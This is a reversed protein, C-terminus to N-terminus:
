EESASFPVTIQVLRERESSIVWTGHEKSFALHSIVQGRWDSKVGGFNWTKLFTAEPRDSGTIKLNSIKIERIQPYREFFRKKDLRIESRPVDHKQLYTTLQPAYCLMQGNLDRTKISEIWKHLLATIQVRTTEDAPLSPTATALPKVDRASVDPALAPPPPANLVVANSLSLEVNNTSQTLPLELDWGYSRGDVQLPATTTLQYRGPTLKIVKVESARVTITQPTGPVNL